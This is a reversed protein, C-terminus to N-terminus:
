LHADEFVVNLPLAEARFARSEPTPVLDVSIRQGALVKRSASKAAVDDIRVHGQDILSQLHARSFEGAMTVLAKDLRTGHLERPVDAERREPADALVDEDAEVQPALGNSDGPPRPDVM